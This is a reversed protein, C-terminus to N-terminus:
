KSYANKKGITKTFRLAIATVVTGIIISLIYLFVNGVVGPIIIAFIGGHPANLTCGFAMSLAGTVAGGLMTAPLVRLPDAAAFPIAGETIFCAGMLWAPKGAEKETKTFLNKFLVTALACGLAPTMGAAMNAAMPATIGDALLGVSFTYAVKDCPGGMDFATMLGMVIGLLVASVTNLNELANTLVNMLAGIPKALVLMMILGVVVISVLPMFLITSIGQLSRPMKIKKLLLLFYGVAFGAIIAGLFGIGLESACLYGLVLGPVIAPRDAISYAVFACFLPIMFQLTSGGLMNSTAGLTGEGPELGWLFSIAILLGGAAVCPIMYSIGTFLHNLVGKNGRAATIDGEAENKDQEAAKSTNQSALAAKVALPAEKIIKDVPWEIVTKGAFRNMDVKVASAIIVAHAEKIDKPTLENEVGVAGQTEVKMEAGLEKAAKELAEAAMYTHAIGAPCNTIAVLKMNNGGKM